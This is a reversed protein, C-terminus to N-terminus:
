ATPLTSGGFPIVCVSADAGVGALAADLALRASPFPVFGIKRVTDADFASAFHVSVGRSLIEAIAAAKHAGLRFDKRIEELMARPKMTKMWEEFLGEGFGEGCEAVFVVFGGDRVAHKANDLAKQAQYLNIDKPWGGASVVVVDAREGLSVKYFSDLFRCGERHAGVPHGAFAGAIRKEEDLVVNLIFDAPRFERVEEIDERVPNGDLVGARAGDELMFGHNHRIAERSSVGPMVAKMGGSYGAFYHYEVNGLLILHEAEAVPRFIDVPTGRRTTGLRVTDNPDSDAARLGAAQPGLLKMREEPTHARHSGLGFVVTVDDESVGCRELTKAVEPLVKATPMPRTVDSTVVVVKGGPRVIEELRPSGVPSALAKAVIERENAAEPFPRPLLIAPRREGPFRLEQGGRGYHLEIKM